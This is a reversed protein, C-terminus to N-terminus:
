PKPASRPPLTGLPAAPPTRVLPQPAPNAHLPTSVPCLNFDPCVRLYQGSDLVIDQSLTSNDGPTYPLLDPYEWLSDAAASALRYSGCIQGICNMPQYRLPFRWGDLRLAAVSGSIYGGAVLNALMADITTDPPYSNNDTQYSELPSAIIRVAILSLRYRQAPTLDPDDVLQLWAGDCLILDDEYSLVNRYNYDRLSPREWIRDTAASGICYHDALAGGTSSWAEYRYAHRWPDLATFGDALPQSFYEPPIRSLAELMSDAPPYQNYDTNYSELVWRWTQMQRYAEFYRDHVSEDPDSFRTLLGGNDYILDEAPNEMWRSRCLFLSGYQWNGDDGASGLRYRLVPGSPSPRLIEYRLARGWADTADFGAPLYEPALQILLQDLTDAPPYANSDTQYAELASILPKVKDRTMRMQQWGPVPQPPAPLTTISQKRKHGNGAWTMTVSLTLLLFFRNAARM